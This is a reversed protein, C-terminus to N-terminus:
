GDCEGIENSWLRAVAYQRANVSDNANPTASTQCKDGIESKNCITTVGLNQLGDNGCWGQGFPDTVAEALEHSAYVTGTDAAPDGGPVPDSSGVSCNPDAFAVAAYIVMDGGTAAHYGCILDSKANASCDTGIGFPGGPGCLSEGPGTFVFYINGDANSWGSVSGVAARVKDQIAQDNICKVGCSYTTLHGIDDPYSSTDVVAGAYVSTTTIYRAAGTTETEFYQPLVYKYAETQSADQFYQEVKNIYTDPITHDPPSWFVLFTKSTHLVYGGQYSLNAPNNPFTPCSPPNDTPHSGPCFSNSPGGTPGSGAASSATVTATYASFNAVTVTAQPSEFGGNLIAQGGQPDTVAVDDIYMSTLAGDGSQHVNFRITVNHGTWPSLDFVVQTWTRANSTANLAQALLTGTSDQVQAEQWSATGDGTTQPYYWFSLSAGAHLAGIQETVSSDTPQYLYDYPRPSGLLVSHSGGRVHDASLMPSALGSVLWPSASSFATSHNDPLTAVSYGTLPDGGDSTPPQWYVTAEGNGALATVNTPPGPPVPGPAGSALHAVAPNDPQVSGIVTAPSYSPGSPQGGAVAFCTAMTGNGACATSNIYSPGTNPPTTQSVWTTGGDVTAAIGLNGHSSGTTPGTDGSAWCQFTDTCSISRLVIGPPAAPSRYSYWGDVTTAIYGTDSTGLPGQTWSHGVATCRSASVCALGTIRLGVGAPAPFSNAATWTHGGDGSALVAVGSIGPAAGDAMYCHLDDPCALADGFGGAQLPQVLSWTVGGDDTTLLWNFSAFRCHNADPCSIGFAYPNSRTQQEIAAPIAVPAWTNGGDVSREVAVSSDSDYLGDLWCVSVTPCVIGWIEDNLPVAPLSERSWTQGGDSTGIISTASYGDDGAVWCHTSDACTASTDYGLTPPTTVVQWGPTLGAAAVGMPASGFHITAMVLAIALTHAGVRKRGGSGCRGHWDEPSEPAHIPAQARILCREAM